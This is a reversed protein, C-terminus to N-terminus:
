DSEWVCRAFATYVYNVPHTDPQEIPGVSRKRKSDSEELTCTQTLSSNSTPESVCAVPATLSSGTVWGSDDDSNWSYEFNLDNGSDGTTAPLTFAISNSLPAEQVSGIFGDGNCISSPVGTPDSVSYLFFEFTCLSLSDLCSQEARSYIIVSHSTYAACIDPSTAPDTTERKKLVGDPSLILPCVTSRSGDLGNWAVPAYKGPRYWSGPPHLNPRRRNYGVTYYNKVLQQYQTIDNGLGYVNGPESLKLAILGAMM